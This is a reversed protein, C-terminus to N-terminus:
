LESIPEDAYYPLILMQGQKIGTHELHNSEMVEDIYSGVSDYEPTIYREAINWLTDDKEVVYSTFYKRENVRMSDNAQVKSTNWPFVFVMLLVGILVAM